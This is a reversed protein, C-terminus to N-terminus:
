IQYSWTPTVDVYGRVLVDHLQVHRAACLVSAARAEGDYGLTGQLASRTDTM